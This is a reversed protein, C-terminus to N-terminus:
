STVAARTGMIIRPKASPQLWRMLRILHDQNISVCGHTASHHTVHLFIASGLGPTQGWNYGIVVGYNYPPSVHMPEPSRGTNGGRSDVWRNYNASASDDDWYSTTLARRYHFRVGPNSHVGFMFKLRFSGTPTRNDGERKQASPAFGNLGLWAYWPGFVHHWGHSNKQWVDLQASTDGYGNAVVSIVQTADHAGRFRLGSSAAAPTTALLLLAAALAARLVRMGNVSPSMIRGTAAVTAAASAKHTGDAAADEWGAKRQDCDGTVAACSPPLQCEPQGSPGDSSRVTRM